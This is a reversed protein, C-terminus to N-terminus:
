DLVTTIGANLAELSGSLNSAYVDEPRYHTGINGLM